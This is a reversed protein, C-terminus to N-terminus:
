SLFVLQERAPETGGSRLPFPSLNAWPVTDRAAPVATCHAHGMLVDLPRWPFLVVFAGSQNKWADRPPLLWCLSHESDLAM